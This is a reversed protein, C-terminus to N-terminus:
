PTLLRQQLLRIPEDKKEKNVELPIDNKFPIAGSNM